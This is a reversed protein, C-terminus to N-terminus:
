IRWMVLLAVAGATERGLGIDRLPPERVATIAAGLPRRFGGCWLCLRRAQQRGGWVVIVYSRNAFWEIAAAWPRRFGGCWLCLWRAKQRGGWVLIVDPPERVAWIAARGM